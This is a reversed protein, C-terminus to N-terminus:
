GHPSHALDTCLRAVAPNCWVKTPPVAKKLSLVENTDVIEIRTHAPAKIFQHGDRGHFHELGDERQVRVGHWDITMLGFPYLRLEPPADPTINAIDISDPADVAETGLSRQQEMRAFM